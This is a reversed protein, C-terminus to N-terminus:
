DRDWSLRVANCHRCVFKYFAAHGKPEYDSAFMAWDDGTMQYEAKWAEITDQTAGAVDHATADGHYTCAGGCHAQRQQNQCCFYGPTRKTVEDVIARAVGDRLLSYCDAFDADYKRSCVRRCPM